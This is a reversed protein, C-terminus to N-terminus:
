NINDFAEIYRRKYEGTLTKGYEHMDNEYVARHFLVGFIDGYIVMYANDDTHNIECHHTYAESVLYEMVVRSILEKNDECIESHKIILSFIMDKKLGYGKIHGQDIYESLKQEISNIIRKDM